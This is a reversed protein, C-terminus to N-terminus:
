PLNAPPQLGGPRQLGGPPGLTGPRPGGTAWDLLEVTHVVPLRTYRAIQEMCGLNGAAVVQPSVAEIHAAKQRGLDAALVVTREWEGAAKVQEEILDELTSRFTQLEALTQLAM